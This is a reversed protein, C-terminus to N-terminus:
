GWQGSRACSSFGTPKLRRNQATTVSHRNAARRIGRRLLDQLGKLITRKQLAEPQAEARDSDSMVRVVEAACRDCIYVRPGAVLKEVEAENRRCFSCALTRKFM